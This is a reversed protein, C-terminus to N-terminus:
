ERLPGLKSVTLLCWVCARRSKEIAEELSEGKFRVSEKTKRSRFTVPMIREEPLRDIAITDGVQYLISTSSSFLWCTIMIQLTSVRKQEFIDFRWM